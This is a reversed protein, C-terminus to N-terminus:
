EWTEQHQVASHMTTDHVSAGIQQMSSHTPRPRTDMRSYFDGGPISNDSSGECSGPPGGKSACLVPGRASQLPCGAALTHPRGIRMTYGVGATQLGKRKAFTCRSQQQFGVSSGPFKPFVIMKPVRAPVEVRMCCHLIIQDVPHQLCVISAQPSGCSFGRLESIQKHATLRDARVGTAHQFRRVQALVNM